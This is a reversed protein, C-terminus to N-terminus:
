QFADMGEPVEDIGLTVKGITKNSEIAQHAQVLGNRTLPLRKTVHSIIKGEDVLKSCEEMMSHRKM